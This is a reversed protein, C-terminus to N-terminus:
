MDIVRAVAPGIRVLLGDTQQIVASGDSEIDVLRGTVKQRGHSIEIPEHMGAAWQMCARCLADPECSGRDALWQELRALVADLLEARCGHVTSLPGPLDDISMGDDALAMVLSGAYPRLEPPFNHEQQGVNVAFGLVYAWRSADGSMRRAEVLIGGIKRGNYLIDNPWKIRTQVDFLEHISQVIAVAAALTLRWADAPQLTDHIVVSAMLGLGPPCQWSRGHRGRGHTQIDATIVLGHADAQAACALADDNTSTTSGTHRRKRGLQAPSRMM